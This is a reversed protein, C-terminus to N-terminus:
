ERVGKRYIVKAVKGAYKRFLINTLDSSQTLM